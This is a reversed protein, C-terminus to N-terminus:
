FKIFIKIFKRKMLYISKLINLKIKWDKKSFESLEIGIEPKNENYIKSLVDELVRRLYTFSAVYYGENACINAKKFEELYEKNLLKYRQYKNLTDRRVDYM